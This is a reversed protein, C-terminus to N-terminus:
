YSPWKSFNSMSASRKMNKKKLIGNIEDKPRTFEQQCFLFPIAKKKPVVVAGLDGAPKKSYLSLFQSTAETEDTGRRM